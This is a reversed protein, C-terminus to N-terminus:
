GWHAIPNHKGNGACMISPCIGSLRTKLEHDSQALGEEGITCEHFVMVGVGHRKIIEELWDLDVRCSTLYLDDVRPIHSRPSRPKPEGAEPPTSDPRNSHPGELALIRLDPLLDLLERLTPYPSYPMEDVRVWAVNSRAFFDKIENEVPPLFNGDNHTFLFRLSKSGPALLRLVTGLQDGVVTTLDLIELDELHVPFSSSNELLPDSIPINFGLIQLKPSSTLIGILESETICIKSGRYCTLRLDVLGHYAPHGWPFYLGHLRLNTTPILLSDMCEPTLGPRLPGPSTRDHNTFPVISHMDEVILETFTGPSFDMYCWQLILDGLGGSGKHTDLYLSKIRPGYTTMANLVGEIDCKDPTVYFASCYYHIDLPLNGARAVYAEARALFGDSDPRIPVLDIHAWFAPTNLMLQRWRICVRTLLDPYRPIPVRESRRYRLGCTFTKEFTGAALHLIRVLIESPLSHIPVLSPFRNKAQSIALKAESLKAEFPTTLPIASAIRDTIARPVGILSSHDAKQSYDRIAFCANLYRDLTSGLLNGAEELEDVLEIM